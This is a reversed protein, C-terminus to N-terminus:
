KRILWWAYRGIFMIVTALSAFVANVHKGPDSLQFNRHFWFMWSQLSDKSKAQTAINELEPTLFVSKERSYAEVYPSMETPLKVGNIEPYSLLVQSAIEAKQEHALSVYQQNKDDVRKFLDACGLYIGTTLVILM